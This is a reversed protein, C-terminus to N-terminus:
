RRICGGFNIAPESKMGGAALLFVYEAPTPKRNQETIDRLLFESQECDNQFSEAVEDAFCTITM